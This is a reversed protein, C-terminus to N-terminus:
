EGTAIGPSPVRWMVDPASNSGAALIEPTYGVPTKIDLLGLADAIQSAPEAASFKEWFKLDIRGRWFRYYAAVYIQQRMFENIKFRHLAPAKKIVVPQHNLHTYVGTKTHPRLVILGAYEPIDERAPEFGCAVYWFYNPKSIVSNLKVDNLQENGLWWHKCKKKFDARFDAATRKIEYEHVFGAGTVSLLDSEWEYLHINNIILQHKKKWGLHVFLFNQIDQETM